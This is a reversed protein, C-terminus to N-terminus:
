MVDVEHYDFYSYLVLGQTSSAQLETVILPAVKKKKLKKNIRLACM